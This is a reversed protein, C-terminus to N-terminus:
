SSAPKGSRKQKADGDQAIIEGQRTITALAATLTSIQDRLREIESEAEAGKAAAYAMASQNAETLDAVQQSLNIFQDEANRARETVEAIERQALAHKSYLEEFSTQIEARKKDSEHVSITADALEAEVNARQKGISTLEDRYRTTLFDQTQKCVHAVIRGISASVDTQAKEMLRDVAPHLLDSLPDIEDPRDSSGDAVASNWIEILRDPRGRDGLTRRLAWGTPKKGAGLLTRGAEVVEQTSVEAPRM